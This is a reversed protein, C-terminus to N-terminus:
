TVVSSPISTASAAAVPSSSQRTLTAPAHWAPGTTVGAPTTMTPVCSPTCAYLAVSPWCSQAAASVPPTPEVGATLEAPATYAVAQLPM